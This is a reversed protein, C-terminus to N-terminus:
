IAHDDKLIMDYDRMTNNRYWAFINCSLQEYCVIIDCPLIGIVHSSKAQYFRNGHLIKANYDFGLMCYYRFIGRMTGQLIIAPYQFIVM